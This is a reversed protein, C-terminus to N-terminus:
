SLAPRDPLRMRLRFAPAGSARGLPRVVAHRSDAADVHRARMPEDPHRAQVAVFGSTRFLINTADGAIRVCQQTILGLRWSEETTFSGPTTAERECAEMFQRAVGRLAARATELLAFAQGYYLQYERDDIRLTETRPVKHRKIIDEYLDLACYGTGLAVGAIETMLVNFSPGIYMPNSLVRDAAPTVSALVDMPSPARDGAVFQAHVVTRHSGTGRM